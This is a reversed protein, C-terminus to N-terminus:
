LSIGRRDAEERALRATVTRGANSEKEYVGRVQLRFPRLPLPPLRYPLSESNDERMCLYDIEICHARDHATLRSM